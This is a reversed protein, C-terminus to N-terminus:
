LNSCYVPLGGLLVTTGSATSGSEISQDGGVFVTAGSALGFVDQEGASIRAGVDTGSVTEVGGPRVITGSATGSKLVTASGGGDIVTANAVGGASVVQLGTAEVTASTAVGRVDQEGGIQAASDVGSVLETGGFEITTGSAAGGSDVILKGFVDAGAATGGSRVEIVGGVAVTDANTLGGSLV